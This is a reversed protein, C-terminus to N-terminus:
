QVIGGILLSGLKVPIDYFRALILFLSWGALYAADKKDLRSSRALIINGEFGRCLMAHYIRQARDISRILLQGLLSGWVKYGLQERGFSRLRHAQLARAAEDALVHIYRYMILIQVVFARPLKLDLLAACVANMGTTAILILAALVSLIARTLISFFSIWGASVSFFAFHIAPTRDLMPNFIGIFLIFPLALGLKKLLPKLPLGAANILAVPYIFFSLLTTPQYKPVSAVLIIFLLTVLLKVLPHLRHIATDRCALEDLYRLDLISTEINRM